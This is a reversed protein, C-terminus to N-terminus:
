GSVGRYNGGLSATIERAAEMLLPRMKTTNDDSFRERPGSLSLAGVLQGDADFVPASMGACSADREGLSLAFHEKRIRDFPAGEAGSFAMIVRGAAGRDLPLIDGVHVRDLTAHRSDLRFLCLRTRDDQRIHFSPSETGADILRQFVPMVHDRLPNRREYAMGLRYVTPGLTYRTDPTRVIYGHAHLSDLLRLITSKYLGTRRSIESLTQPEPDSEVAALISLARDVAAVGKQSPEKDDEGSTSDTKALSTKKM